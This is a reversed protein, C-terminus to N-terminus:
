PGLWNAHAVGPGPIEDFIRPNSRDDDQAMTLPASVALVLGIALSRFLISKTYDLTSM